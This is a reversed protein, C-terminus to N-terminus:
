AKEGYGNVLTVFLEELRNAKNRMSLVQIGQASLQSFVGNLGQERMVEVELTSTDLLRHKYGDLKPLPSKIALDFIFTESKLKSLLHKMSTNEVLEGNQIIGINRCLMEAEELYHTTLIITTGQANLEKLFGWMSRRLEIDVGATPEDLILLKPEHMLARAIMLRRKMGGSLMRAREDRKGWLDLQKLYKEARQLADHRKVGYYGAQNVVIQLVTEFPNFNFEQPVLGLQRKANVVDRELDYGFVRVKGATKNVLSSIIGITTSKGAGNPGLLAYFDGAEVRLDIGRLAKVGGSYTKTLQALELAYTM